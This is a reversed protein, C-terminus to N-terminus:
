VFPPEDDDAADYAANGGHFEEAEPVDDPKSEVPAQEKTDGNNQFKNEAKEWDFVTFNVYEKEKEKDYRRNVDVNKLVIRDKEKFEDVGEIAKGVFRVYGSFDSEYKDTKKNKRSTSIQVDRFKDGESPEKVKWVTAIAGNRFGM